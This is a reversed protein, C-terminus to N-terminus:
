VSSTSCINYEGINNWNNVMLQDSWPGHQGTSDTVAVAFSYNQGSTLLDTLILSTNSSYVTMSCSSSSSSSTTTINITYNFVCDTPGNPAPPLWTLVTTNTINSYSINVGLPPNEAGAACYHLMLFLKGNKGAIKFLKNRIDPSSISYCSISIDNHILAADMLTANSVIFYNDDSFYATSNFDGFSVSLPAGNYYSTYPFGTQRWNLTPPVSMPQPM